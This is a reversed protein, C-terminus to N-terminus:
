VEGDIASTGGVVTVVVRAPLCVISQKTKSIKRHDVCIGDPCSAETVDAEGEKIELLNYSGDPFEIRETRDETLPFEGWPAGDVTVVVTGTGPASGQSLWFFLGAALAVLLVLGIVIGDKKKAAKM